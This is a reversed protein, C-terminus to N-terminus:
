SPSPTTYAIFASRLVLLLILPYFAVHYSQPLVGLVSLVLVLSGLIVTAWFYNKLWSPRQKKLLLFSIFFHTPVLWAMNWNQGCVTHDTAVWMFVFFIGIFGALFFLIFDFPSSQKITRNNSQPQQNDTTLQKSNITDIDEQIRNNKKQGSVAAEQRRGEARQFKLFQWITVLAGLGFLIWCLYFPKQYFPMTDPIDTAKFIVETSKVLPEKRGENMVFSNDFAEYLYIPLFMYESATMVRDTKAGLILDIGFDGWYKGELHEDLVNRFTKATKLHTTDMVLKDGLITQLVDRPRTACNDFFFDYLYERNEPKYNNELFDYLQQKQLSDLHLTQETLSRNDRMYAPKARKFPARSLRYNLKGQVFKGYFNPTRFNFTGYNYMWDLDNVPDKVRYATHGFTSYLEDGKDITILSITAHPSLVQANLSLHWCLFLVGILM